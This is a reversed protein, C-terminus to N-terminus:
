YEIRRDYGAGVRVLDIVRERRNIVVIDYSTECDTEFVRATCSGPALDGGSAVITVIPCPLIDTFAWDHHVHGALVALIEGKASTFDAHVSSYAFSEPDIDVCGDYVTRNCYARIINRLQEKDPHGIDDYSLPVHSAIIAGYGEPMDLAENILWDLQEQGYCSIRFRDNKAAGYEDTSYDGGFHSNLMIYRLKQKTDDAYFYTGERSFRRNEHKYQDKFFTDFLKQHGYQMAYHNGNVFGYCGDHNGVTLLLREDGWLPSLNNTFEKYMEDLKEESEISYQTGIDGCVVVNSLNCADMTASFLAGIRRTNGSTADPIHLDSAWVFAAVDDGAQKILSNALEATREIEGTWFEPISYNISMTM